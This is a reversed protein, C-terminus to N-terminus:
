ADNRGRHDVHGTGPTASLEHNCKGTKEVMETRDGIRAIRAIDGM